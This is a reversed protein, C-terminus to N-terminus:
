APSDPGSGMAALFVTLIILGIMFTCGSDSIQQVLNMTAHSLLPLTM